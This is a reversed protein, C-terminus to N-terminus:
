PITEFVPLIHHLLEYGGGVLGVRSAVRRLTQAAQATQHADNASALLRQARNAGIAQELRSPVGPSPPNAMKNLNTVLKKTDIKEPIPRKAQAAIEPRPTTNDVSARINKSLDLMAKNKRFDSNAQDLLQKATQDKGQAKLEATAEDTAKEHAAQLDNLKEVYAGEQDPDIGNLERIKQQVNKIADQFRQARGGMADDLAQYSQKAKSELNGSVDHAVDRISTAASPNVGAENAFDNIVNRMESQIADQVVGPKIAAKINELLPTAAEAAKGAATAALSGAAPAVAGLAAGAVPHGTKTGEASGLTASRLAQVARTLLPSGEVVKAMKGANLLRDAVSLGKLAEDGLYFEAGAEGTRGAWQGMKTTADADPDGQKMNNLVNEVHQMANPAISGLPTKRILNLATDASEALGQMAGTEVDFMGSNGPHVNSVPSPAQAIQSQDVATDQSVPAGITAGPPLGSVQPQNVPTDQSVPDGITAGAPLGPINPTNM